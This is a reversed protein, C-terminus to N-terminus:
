KEERADLGLTDICIVWKVGLHDTHMQPCPLSPSLAARVGEPGGLLFPTALCVIIISGEYEVGLRKVLDGKERDLSPKEHGGEIGTTTGWRIRLFSRDRMRLRCDGEDVNDANCVDYLGLSM